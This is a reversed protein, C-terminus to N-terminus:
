EGLTERAWELVIALRPPLLDEAEDFTVWRFEHHEPRGLAHSIPLHVTEDGTEAIIRRALAFALTAKGIGRPGSLLIASPYRGAAVLEDLRARVSFHGLVPGLNQEPLAVGALEDAERAADDGSM